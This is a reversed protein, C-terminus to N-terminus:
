EAKIGFLAPLSSISGALYLFCYPGFRYAGHEDADSPSSTSYFMLRGSIESLRRMHLIGASGEEKEGRGM